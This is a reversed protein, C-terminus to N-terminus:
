PSFKTGGIGLNMCQLELRWYPQRQLCHRYPPTHTCASDSLQIQSKAVEHVTAWWAGRDMANGLCSYLLPNSNGGGPARGLVPISGADGANAPPNKVVSDGPFGVKLLPNLNFSTM